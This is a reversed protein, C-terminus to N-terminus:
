GFKVLFGDFLDGNQSHRSNAQAASYELHMGKLKKLVPNRFNCKYGERPM